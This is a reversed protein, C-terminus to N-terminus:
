EIAIPNTTYSYANVALGEASALCHILTSGLSGHSFLLHNTQRDLRIVDKGLPSLTRGLLHNLANIRMINANCTNDLPILHNDKGKEFAFKYNGLRFEENPQVYCNQNTLVARPQFSLLGENNISLGAVTMLGAKLRGVITSEGPFAEAVEVSAYAPVDTIRKVPGDTIFNPKWDTRGIAWFDPIAGINIRHTNSIQDLYAHAQVNLLPMSFNVSRM